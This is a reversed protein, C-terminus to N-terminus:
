PNPSFTWTKKGKFTHVTVSITDSSQYKAIASTLISCYYTQSYSIPDAGQNHHVSLFHHSNARGKEGAHQVSDVAYGWFHRGGQTKATLQMNIYQGHKWMSEIGTPDHHLVTTSDALVQGGILSYIQVKNAYNDIGSVYGVVARYTTDPRHPRINTNAISYRRGNDTIMETMIGYSNTRIDAFETLLDPYHEQKESCASLLLIALPLLMARKITKTYLHKAPIHKM